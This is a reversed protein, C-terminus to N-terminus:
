TKRLIAARANITHHQRRKTKRRAVERTKLRLANRVSIAHLTLSEPPRGLQYEGPEMTGNRDFALLEKQMSMPLMYRLMTRGFQVWATTRFFYAADARYQRRCAQAFGCNGPSKKEARSIDAATVELKLPDRADAMQLGKEKALKVIAKSM